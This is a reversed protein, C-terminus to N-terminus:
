EKVHLRQYAGYPLLGLKSIEDLVHNFRTIECNYPWELGAVPASQALSYELKEKFEDILMHNILSTM